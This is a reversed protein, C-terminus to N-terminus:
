YNIFWRVIWIAAIMWIGIVAGAAIWNRGQRQTLGQVKDRCEALVVPPIMRRVVVIGLPILLLDDLYGLIPIPDPILDIPSLAYGVICVGLAKAYWPTRPDKCALYLANLEEKLGRVKQKWKEITKMALKLLAPLM